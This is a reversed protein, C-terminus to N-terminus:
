RRNQDRIEIEAPFRKRWLSPLPGNVLGHPMLFSAVQFAGPDLGPSGRATWAEKIDM